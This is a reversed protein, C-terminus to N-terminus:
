EGEGLGEGLERFAAEISKALERSQQPSLKYRASVARVLVNLGQMLVKIDGHHEHLAAKVRAQLAALEDDLDEADGSRAPQLLGAQTVSDGYYLRVAQSRVERASLPHKDGGPV